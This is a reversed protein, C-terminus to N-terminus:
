SNVMGAMVLDRSETEGGNQPWNLPPELPLVFSFTAGRGPISEVWLCGGFHSIIQRSIPLGLGTGQPKETMTDGVQRFKDFIINQDAPKIGPGNDNVDVQVAEPQVQLRVAIRGASHDCFKIANSLLNLVVQKIRDRDAVILPVHAPLDVELQINNESFLQSTTQLSETLVEGLNIESLHWEMNGSEIKSLDLVQNILRTLRENEKLIISLFHTRRNIDLDPNDYLIESFARISTLPTRLEHSVTSIFDDKLRDLEKLRDNAARLESTAAELEQSKQELQRSYAITEDLMGMVETLNLPEEKVVSAIMVRASAAGIAGALLKEAYNVLEPDANTVEAWDLHHQRAYDTLSEDARHTGLFRSLLLRLDPMYATGRWLPINAGNGVPRKFIDVFLAAQSHELVSQRTLLSGAVYGVGNVLLSWFLAHSIPNLSSLGFLQYPKLWALGLPGEEMISAPLWGSQALSPLLLTHAWVVFGASLGILAGIRNGDRWYLGGLIAPAFQAVAAFSVLGISVLTHAESTLRFYIYGLMVIVIIAIRRIDLLLDSLDERETVKLMPIRLLVPIVLDNSVMTSLAVTEVIVMGTAASLGGIFAFLTLAERGYAMPLSLVFTDADLQGGPFEILGAFTIPLVFLNIALLYLPFLWIAKPLHTEDTNEVVAVQFQRPLFMIALMSLFMLGAWDIYSGSSGELTFLAHLHPNDAATTFLDSFGHYLGYTVFLGVAMFAALKVVSEFAVAVVLGHHHETADLHRTGFLIAFIALLLAVFFGTDSLLPISGPLAPISNPYNWILTFSTSVGKLQLSIYPIIGVVAIITVLGGLVTSKGYRSAIFDAISTLRNAKSIRIIKRLVFWWLAAMLTPGLYVPLFGVGTSAARGVSGYFTWDTCYVALSLAYIYPSSLSRGRDARKDSYYALAFLGGIYALSVLLIVWGQLMAKVQNSRKFM